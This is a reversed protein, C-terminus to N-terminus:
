KRTISFDKKGTDMRILLAKLQGDTIKDPMQGTHLAQSLMVILQTAKEPFATKLTGFRARADKTLAHKVVDELADLQQHLQQDAEQQQSLEQLKKKRLEELEDM